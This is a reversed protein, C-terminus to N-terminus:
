LHKTIKILNFRVKLPIAVDNDLSFSRTVEFCYFRTYYRDALCLILMESRETHTRSINFSHHPFQLILSM